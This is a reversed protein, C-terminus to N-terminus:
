VHLRSVDEDRMGGRHTLVLDADNGVGRVGDRGRMVGRDAVSTCLCVRHTDIRPEGLVVRVDHLDGGIARWVLLTRITKLDTRNWVNTQRRPTAIAQLAAMFESSYRDEFERRAMSKGSAVLRGLRQSAEPM